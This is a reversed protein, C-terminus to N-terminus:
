PKRRTPKRRGMYPRNHGAKTAATESPLYGDAVAAMAFRECCLLSCFRNSDWGYGRWVTVAKTQSDRWAGIRAGCWFCCHAEQLVPKTM